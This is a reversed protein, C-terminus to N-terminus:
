KLRRWLPSEKFREEKMIRHFKEWVNCMGERIASQDVFSRWDKVRPLLQSGAKVRQVRARVSEAYNYAWPPPPAVKRQEAV